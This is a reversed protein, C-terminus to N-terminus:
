ARRATPQRIQLRGEVPLRSSDAARAGRDAPTARSRHTMARGLPLGLTLETAASTGASAGMPMMRWVTVAVSLWPPATSLGNSTWAADGDDLSSSRLRKHTHGREADRVAVIVIVTEVAKRLFRRAPEDAV